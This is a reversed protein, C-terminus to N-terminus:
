STASELYAARLRRKALKGSPDRPLNEVFDFEKPIKYKAIKTALSGALSTSDVVSGPARQVVAVLREGFEHDPIGIVACDVVGPVAVLAGEIEAPYINVGGSIVMDSVRDSLYLYGDRDIRGADGLTIFGNHEISARDDPRNVYTFDPYAPQKVYVIGVEDPGRVSGDEGIVRLQADGVPRGVSGPYRVAEQSSITTVMGTETSAYTEHIVPGWWEIMSAKVEEPCPAGTSAVFRLSSVDYSKRVHEPLKLLRIFMTPVCYLTDIRFREIMALTAEADFRRNLVFIEGLRLAWQTYLSPASHYLPASMMARCGRRIGFCSEINKGMQEHYRNLDDPAVADRRVGKPRGTTGSTYVMHGHSAATGSQFETQNSLWSDYDWTKPRDRLDSSEPEGVVILDIDSPAALNAIPLLEAGTFLVSAGSDAVIYEVETTTFHWNIPCYYFGGARCALIIDIFAPENRLLVAVVDGEELGLNILGNALRKARSDLSDADHLVGDFRLDATM